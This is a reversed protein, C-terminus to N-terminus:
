RAAASLASTVTPMATEAVRGTAPRARRGSVAVMPWQHSHPISASKRKRFMRHCDSCNRQLRVFVDDPAMAPLEEPTPEGTAVVAGAGRENSAAAALAGAYVRLERAMASFREWDVWIASTARTPSDLSGEPFLATLKEDGHTAIIKAHAKVRQVDYPRRGRIMARLEKMASAMSEMADMRQKVIGTADRHALVGAAYLVLVLAAAVAPLGRPLM